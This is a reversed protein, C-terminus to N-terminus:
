KTIRWQKMPGQYVPPKQRTNNKGGNMQDQIVPQIWLCTTGHNLFRQLMTLLNPNQSASVYVILQATVGDWLPDQNGCEEEHRLVNQIKTEEGHKPLNQRRPVQVRSLMQLATRLHNGGAGAETRGYQGTLMDKGNTRIEAPIGLTIWQEALAAGIRIVSEALLEDTWIDDNELNLIVLVKPLATNEYINVKLQGTRASAKWNVQRFGDWDEYDRIGQFAYPDEYLKKKWFYEGLMEQCAAEVPEMNIAKPFVYLKADSDLNEVYPGDFFLDRGILELQGCCFYGRHTGTFELSRVIRQCPLLSFIDRRYVQDSVMVNSKSSFRLSRDVQLNVQLTPLPLMKRNEVIERLVNQDGERIELSEFEIRAVLGHMWFKQYLIGQLLWLVFAATGIWVFGM